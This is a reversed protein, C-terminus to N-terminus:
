NRLAKLAKVLCRYHKAELVQRQPGCVAPASHDILSMRRFTRNMPVRATSKSVTKQHPLSPQIHHSGRTNTCRAGDKTNELCWSLSLPGTGNVPGNLSAQQFYVSYHEATAPPPSELCVRLTNAAGNREWYSITNDGGNVMIM